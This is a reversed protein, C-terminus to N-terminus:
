ITGKKRVLRDLFVVSPEKLYYLFGIYAGFSVTMTILFNVDSYSFILAISAMGLSAVGIRKLKPLITFETIKRLKTLIYLNIIIQNILTSLASGEIGWIPIFLLNFFINGFIGLLVYSILHAQKEHAFIANAFLTAPFIVVMTLALIAFSNIAPLYEAGYFASIIPTRLIITILTLPIAIMYIIGLAQEFLKRFEKIGEADSKIKHALRALSPFFATAILTPIIYLLQIPRQAASYFGVKEVTTMIGLMITDTNIMVAGMLGLLGFPWASVLIQKILNPDFNKLLHSFYDRLPIIIAIFGVLTGLAYAFALSLSSPNLTLFIFGFMFIVLNTFINNKGEIDMRELSRAVSVGLDRLSDFAFVFIIVPILIKVEDINTISGDLLVFAITIITLLVIKIFFSTAVYKHRLEPNKTAERTILSNIGIDSFITLFAAISIAYSFAGWSEAGLIRAAYIVIFARLARGIIQGGFLWFTNKVIRNHSIENM